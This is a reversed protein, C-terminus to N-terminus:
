GDGGFTLALSRNPPLHSPCQVDIMMAHPWREEYQTNRGLYHGQIVSSIEGEIAKRRRFSSSCHGNNLGRQLLNFGYLRSIDFKTRRDPRSGFLLSIQLSSFFSHRRPIRRENMRFQRKSDREGEGFLSLSFPDSKMEYQQEKKRKMGRFARDSGCRRVCLPPSVFITM